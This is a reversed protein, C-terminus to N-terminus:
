GILTYCEGVLEHCRQLLSARVFVQCCVRSLAAAIISECIGSLVCTVNDQVFYNCM